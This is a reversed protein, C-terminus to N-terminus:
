LLEYSTPPQSLRQRLLAAFSGFACCSASAQSAQMPSLDQAEAVKLQPVVQPVM